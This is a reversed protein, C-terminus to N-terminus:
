LTHWRNWFHPVIMNKLFNENGLERICIKVKPTIFIM